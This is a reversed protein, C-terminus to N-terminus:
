PIRIANKNFDIWGDHYIRDADQSALPAALPSAVSLLLTLAAVPPRMDTADGM